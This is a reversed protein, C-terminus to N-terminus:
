IPGSNAVPLPFASNKRRADNRRRDLRFFEVNELNHRSSEKKLPYCFEHELSRGAM